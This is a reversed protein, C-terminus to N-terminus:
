TLQFARAKRLIGRGRIGRGRPPREYLEATFMGREQLDALHLSRRYRACRWDSVTLGADQYAEWLQVIGRPLTWAFHLEPLTVQLKAGNARYSLRDPVGPSVSWPCDGAVRAVAEAVETIRYSENAGVVNFTEGNVRRQSAVLMAACVEVVDEIHVLPRHGTGRTRLEIRGSGWAGAVLDNVLTDLRLRPSPGYVTALRLVVPCFNADTLAAIDQEARWKALAYPTIPQVPSQEDAQVAGTRGYVSCTSALVFRRVGAEKCRGAFEAATRHNLHLALDAPFHSDADHPLAALHIVAEFGRLADRDFTRFDVKPNQGGRDDAPHIGPTPFDCGQYWEADLGVVDHGACRLRPILVSGIYGRHGTVLVRMGRVFRRLALGVARARARRLGAWLSFM